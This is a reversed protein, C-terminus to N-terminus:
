QLALQLAQRTPAPTPTPAQPPYPLANIKIFWEPSLLKRDDRQGNVLDQYLPYLQYYIGGFSKLKENSIVVNKETSGDNKGTAADNRRTAPFHGNNRYENVANMADITLYNVTRAANEGMYINEDRVVSPIPSTEREQPSLVNAIYAEKVRGEWSETVAPDYNVGRWYSDLRRKAEAVEMRGTTIEGNYFHVMYRMQRTHWYEHMLVYFLDNLSRDIYVKKDAEYFKWSKDNITKFFKLVAVPMQIQNSSPDIEFDTETTSLAVLDSEDDVFEVKVRGGRVEEAFNHVHERLTDNPGADAPFNNPSILGVSGFTQLQIDKREQLAQDFRLAYEKVRDVREQGTEKSFAFGELNYKSVLPSYDGEVRGIIQEEGPACGELFVQLGALALPVGPLALTAVAGKRLFERRSLPPWQPNDANM